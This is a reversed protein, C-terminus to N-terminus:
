QKVVLESMLFPKVWRSHSFMAHGINIMHVARFYYIYEHM